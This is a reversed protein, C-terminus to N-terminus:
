AESNADGYNGDLGALPPIVRKDHNSLPSNMNRIDKIGRDVKLVLDKAKQIRLRLSGSKDNAIIDAVNNQEASARSSQPKPLKEYSPM